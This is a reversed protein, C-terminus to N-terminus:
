RANPMSTMPEIVAPLLLTRLARRMGSEADASRTDVVVPPALFLPIADGVQGPRRVAVGIAAQGPQAPDAAANAHITVILATPDVLASDGASAVVVPRRGQALGDAIIQRALQGIGAASLAGTDAPDVRCVVVIREVGAYALVPSAM